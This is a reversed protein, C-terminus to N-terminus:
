TKPKGCVYLHSGRLEYIVDFNLQLLEIWEDKSLISKHLVAEHAFSSESLIDTRVDKDLDILAILYKIKQSISNLFIDLRSPSLNQLVDRAMCVDFIRDTKLAFKSMCSHIMTLRPNNAQEILHNFQDCVVESIDVLTMDQKYSYNPCVRGPGVSLIYKLNDFNTHNNAFINLNDQLLVEHAQSDQFYYYSYLCNEVEDEIPRTHPLFQKNYREYYKKEITPSSQKDDRFSQGPNKEWMPLFNEPTTKLKTWKPFEPYLKCFHKHFPLGMFSACWTQDYELCKLLPIKKHAIMEQTGSQIEYFDKFDPVHASIHWYIMHLIVHNDWIGLELRQDESLSKLLIWHKNFCQYSDRFKGCCVFALCCHMLLNSQRIVTLKDYFSDLLSQFILLASEFDGEESRLHARITNFSSQQQLDASYGEKLFINTKNGYLMIESERILDNIPSLFERPEIYDINWLTQPQRATRCIDMWGTADGGHRISEIKSRIIEALDSTLVYTGKNLNTSMLITNPIAM